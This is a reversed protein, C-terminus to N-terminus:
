FDTSEVNYEYKDFIRLEYSYPDEKSVLFAFLNNGTSFERGETLRLIELGETQDVALGLEVLKSAVDVKKAKRTYCFARVALNAIPNNPLFCDSFMQCCKNNRNYINECDALEVLSYLRRKIEEITLPYRFDSM